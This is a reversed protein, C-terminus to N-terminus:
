IRPAFGLVGNGWSLPQPDPGPMQLDSIVADFPQTELLKLAEEGGSTACCDFGQMRLGDSLLRRIGQEDDVILIRGKGLSSCKERSAAAGPSSSPAVSISRRAEGEM